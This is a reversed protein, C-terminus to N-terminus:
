AGMHCALESPAAWNLGIAWSTRIVRSRNAEPGYILLTGDASDARMERCRRGRKISNVRGVHTLKGRRTAEALCREADEGLKWETSGGVFVADIEDWPITEPTAGDQLVIAARYGLERIDALLPLSRELTAAWDGVVDPATAWLCWERAELPISDLWDLYQIECFRDGRTFCGNDAAWYMFDRVDYLEPRHSEPTVLLGLVGDELEGRITESFPSLYM